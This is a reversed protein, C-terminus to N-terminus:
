SGYTGRAQHPAESANAMVAAYPLIQAQQAYLPALDALPQLRALVTEPEASAVVSYSQAIAPRGSRPPALILFSTLDRPSGEVLTGWGALYGAVDTVEGADQVLVAFGVPGVEDAEFEFATVVGFNAGAGRVAWFLDPNEADSARVISGDALVMEVARLHDITLGHLRTLFGIGGATALGGVGVGGYDGSSLAWGYPALAAAVDTWRAGPGIRVRRPREDLVEIANMASVDVVIGGDNTSRGSIGHGASRIALPLEPHRRAFALADAVQQPTAARLVIGPAGGRLYGSRFRAYALDGPEVVEAVDPAADYDIGPHRRARAAARRVRPRHAAVARLAPAEDRAFRALAEPDGTALLVSDVGHGSVLAALDPVGAPVLIRRRIERPDRGAARAAEDITHHAAALAGPDLTRLDATWGDAVRGALRLLAEGTGALALPVDHAPAARQAGALRYTRGPFRALGRDTVNWLERVVAVAEELVAVADPTGTALGLGVRGGSLHDLSAAARAVMAPDRPPVAMAEAVLGIRGTAAAIWSLLTWADLEPHAPDDAVAVLDLGLADASTALDVASPTRPLLVGLELPPGGTM